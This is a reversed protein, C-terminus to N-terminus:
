FGIHIKYRLKFQDWRLHEVAMYSSQSDYQVVYVECVNMPFDDCNKCTWLPCTFHIDTKKKM